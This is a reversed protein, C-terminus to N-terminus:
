TASAWNPTAPHARRPPQIEVVFGDSDRFMAFPRELHREGEARFEDPMPVPRGGRTQPRLEGARALAEWTQYPDTVCLGIHGSGVSWPDLADWVHLPAGRYERLFLPFRRDSVASPLSMELGRWEREGTNWLAQEAGGADWPRAEGRAFGLAEYFSAAADLDAVHRSVSEIAIV